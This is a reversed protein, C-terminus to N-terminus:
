APTDPDAPVEIGLTDAADELISVVIAPDTFSALRMLVHLGLVLDHEQPSRGFNTLPLRDQLARILQERRLEAALTSSPRASRAAETAPLPGSEHAMWDRGM